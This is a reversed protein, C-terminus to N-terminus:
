ITSTVVAIHGHDGLSSWEAPQTVGLITHSDVTIGDSPFNVVYIVTAQQLNANPTNEPEM